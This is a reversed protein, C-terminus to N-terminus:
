FYRPTVVKKVRYDFDYGLFLEFSGATARQLVTLNYDYSLGVRMGNKLYYAGWANVSAFSSKGSFQELSSRYSGGLWLAQYFFLSLDIDFSTSALYGKYYASKNFKNFLGTNRVMLSPKFILQDGNIPFAAGATFFYHRFEKALTDRPGSTRERLNWEILHPVGIGMYYKREKKLYVGGGFNPRLKSYSNFVVDPSATTVKTADFNYYQAGGQLGVSLMWSKMPIRYAYCINGTFTNTAGLADNIISGGLGVRENKMPTHLTLTQSQPGGKLGFWQSRHLLGMSLYGESGAYAPNMVLSNFMYKTFLPDQQGYVNALILSAVIFSFIKKM